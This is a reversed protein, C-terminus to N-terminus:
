AVYDDLSWEFECIFGTYVAFFAVIGERFLMQFPRALSSRFMTTIPVARVPALASRYANETTESLGKAM